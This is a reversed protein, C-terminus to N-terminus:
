KSYIHLNIIYFHLYIGIHQKINHIKFTYPLIYYIM